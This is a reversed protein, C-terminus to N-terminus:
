PTKKELIQELRELHAHLKEIKTNVSNAEHYAADAKEQTKEATTHIATTIAATQVALSQASVGDATERKQLAAAVRRQDCTMKWILIATSVTAIAISIWADNIM